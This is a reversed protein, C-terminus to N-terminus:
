KTNNKIFDLVTQNLLFGVSKGDMQANILGVVKNESNLMPSGSNGPTASSNLFVMNGSISDIPKEDYLLNPFKEGPYGAYNLKDGEKTNQIEEISAFQLPEINDALNRGDKPSVQIIALDINIGDDGHEDQNFEIINEIDFLIEEGNENIAVALEQQTNESLGFETVHKNTVVTNPGVIFATGGPATTNDKRSVVPVVSQYKSNIVDKFDMETRTETITTNSNNDNNNNNQNTTNQQTSNNQNTTTQQTSNNQNATDTQKNSSCQVLGVGLVLLCLTKIFIRKM